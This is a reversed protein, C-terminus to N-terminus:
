KKISDIDAELRRIVRAIHQLAIAIQKLQENSDPNSQAAQAAQIAKLLSM